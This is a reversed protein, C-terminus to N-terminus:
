FVDIRGRVGRRFFDWGNLHFQVDGLFDDGSHLLRSDVFHVLLEGEGNLRPTLGVSRDLKMVIMSLDCWKNM